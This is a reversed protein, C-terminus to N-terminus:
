DAVPSEEEDGVNSNQRLFIGVAAAVNEQHRDLGAFRDVAGRHLNEAFVANRDLCRFSARVTM